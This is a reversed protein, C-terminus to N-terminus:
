CGGPCSPEGAGRSGATPLEGPLMPSETSSSFDGYISLIPIRSGLRALGDWPLGSWAGGTSLRPSHGGGLGGPGPPVWAALGPAFPLSGATCVLATDGRLGTM